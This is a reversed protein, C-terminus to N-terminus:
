KTWRWAIVGAVVGVAGVIAVRAGASTAAAPASGVSRPDGGSVARAIVQSTWEAMAADSPAFFSADGGTARAFEEAMRMKQATRLWGYAINNYESGNGTIRGDVIARAIVEGTKYFRERESTGVLQPALSNLHQAARGEGASWAWCMLAFPWASVAPPGAPRLSPQLGSNVGALKNRLQALGIATSDAYNPPRWCGSTMCAPRGLLSVVLQSDHLRYWDNSASTDRNPKVAANWPGSPIGWETLESFSAHSAATGTDEGPSGNSTFGYGAAYPIGPFVRPWLSRMVVGSQGANRRLVDALHDRSYHSPLNEPYVRAM